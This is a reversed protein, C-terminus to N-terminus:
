PFQHSCKQLIFQLCVNLYKDIETPKKSEEMFYEYCLINQESIVTHSICLASCVSSNWKVANLFTVSAKLFSVALPQGMSSFLGFHKVILDNYGVFQIKDPFFGRITWLSTEWMNGTEKAM